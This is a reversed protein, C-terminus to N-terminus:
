PGVRFDDIACNVKRGMFRFMVKKHDFSDLPIEVYANFKPETGKDLWIQSWHKGKNESIDLWVESYDFPGLSSKDLLFSVRWKEGLHLPKKLGATVATYEANHCRLQGAKIEWYQAPSFYELEWGTTNGAFDWYYHDLAKVLFERWLGSKTDTVKVHATGSSKWTLIGQDPNKNAVAELITSDGSIFAYEPWALSPYTAPVIKLTAQPELLIPDDWAGQGNRDQWSLNLYEDGAPNGGEPDFFPKSNYTASFGLCEGPAQLNVYLERTQDGRAPSECYLWYFSGMYRELRKLIQPIHGAAVYLNKIPYYNNASFLYLLTENSYNAEPGVLFAKSDGRAKTAAEFTILGAEDDGKSFVLMHRQRVSSIGYHEKCLAYGEVLAGYFNRPALDPTLEEIAKLLLDRHDFDVFGESDVGEQGAEVPYLVGKSFAALLIEQVADMGQVLDAAAAKLAELEDPAIGASVDIMLIIQLKYPIRDRPRLWFKDTEPSLPLGNELIAFDHRTLGTLGFEYQNMAQFMLHVGCPATRIAHDHRILVFDFYEYINEDNFPYFSPRSGGTASVGPSCGSIFLLLVILM